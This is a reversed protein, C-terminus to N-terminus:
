SLEEIQRQLAEIKDLRERERTSDIYEPAYLTDHEEKIQKLEGITRTLLQNSDWTYLYVDKSYSPDASGKWGGMFVRLQFQNVHACYECFMTLTDCNYELCMKTIELILENEANKM